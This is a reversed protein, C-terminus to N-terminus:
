HTHPYAESTYSGRNILMSPAPLGVILIISHAAIEISSAIPGRCLAYRSPWTRKRPLPHAEVDYSAWISKSSTEISRPHPTSGQPPARTEVRIDCLGAHWLAGCLVVSRAIAAVSYTLRWGGRLWQIFTGQVRPRRLGKSSVGLELSCNSM